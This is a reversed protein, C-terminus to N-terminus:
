KFLSLQQITNPQLCKPSNNRVNNVFRSVQTITLKPAEQPLRARSLYEDLVPSTTLIVPMRHHYSRTQESATQTLIVFGTNPVYLGAFLIGKRDAPSFYYPQRQGHESRWEYYGSAPVACRQWNLPIHKSESRKNILLNQRYPIGWPLLRSVRTEDLIPLQHSPAANYTPSQEHDVVPTLGFSTYIEILDYEIAYRGCM